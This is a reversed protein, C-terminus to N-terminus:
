WNKKLSMFYTHLLILLLYICIYIYKVDYMCSHTTIIRNNILLLWNDCVYHMNHLAAHRNYSLKYKARNRTPCYFYTSFRARVAQFGLICFTIVRTSVGGGNMRRTRNNKLGYMNIHDNKLRVCIHWKFGMTQIKKRTLSRKSNLM